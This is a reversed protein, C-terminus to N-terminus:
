KTLLMKKTEVFMGARLTYFYVGSAARTGSMTTGDWRAAFNGAPMHGNLLQKVKQGLANSISLEVVTNAASQPISFTIITSPNFPNPYNQGLAITSPVASNGHGSNVSTVLSSVVSRVGGQADALYVNVFDPRFSPSVAYATKWEEDTLRKYNVSVHEYYSSVPGIYSTLRGDPAETTLVALNVPGTGAHMVWGRGNDPSTHVDAVVYDLLTYRSEKEQRDYGYFLRIYWGAGERGSIAAAGGCGGRGTTQIMTALFQKEDGTLPSRALEKQAISELTDAISGLREWYALIQGKVDSPSSPLLISFTDKAIAAFEKLARYFEPYPEVYSEPFSCAWDVTYSPKAYLMFDHRLEAWSALQTNMKEQWWAATQMFRPLGTRVAPPNLTRISNLWNNYVSAKWFAPEYSEVLYTLSALNPAYHYQTLEPELLQGAADNGLAFLIDYRSPLSRWIEVNNFLIKNYVVNCAIYSDIIFRQGLLLFSSAPEVAETTMDDELIQSLIRQFEKM